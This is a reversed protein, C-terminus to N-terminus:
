AQWAPTFVALSAPVSTDCIDVDDGLDNAFHVGSTRQVDYGLNLKSMIVTTLLSCNIKYEKGKAV